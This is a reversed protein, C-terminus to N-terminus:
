DILSYIAQYMFLSGNRGIRPIEQLELPTFRRTYELTPDLEGWDIFKREAIKKRAEIYLYDKFAGFTYKIVRKETPTYTLYLDALELPYNIFLRAARGPDTFLAVFPLRKDQFGVVSNVRRCLEETLIKGSPFPYENKRM